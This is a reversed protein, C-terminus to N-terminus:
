RVALIQGQHQERIVRVHIHDLIELALRDKEREWGYASCVGSSREQKYGLDRRGTRDGVHVLIGVLWLEPALQLLTTVM